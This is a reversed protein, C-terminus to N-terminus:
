LSLQTGFFQHKQVTTNSFNRSLGKSQLSLWGTWQLPFWAQINVPLVSASASVGISQGGSTFFQSMQFSRPASFSQLLSFFPIVSSSITPHCWQSSPCSNLCARPTPSPCPLRAHQLGHPRLYDSMVSCSFQVSDEKEYEKGIHCMVPYHIYSRSSDLLVKNNLIKIITICEEIFVLSVIFLHGLFCSPLFVTLLFSTGVSSHPGWPPVREQADEWAQM